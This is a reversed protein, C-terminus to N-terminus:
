TSKTTIVQFNVSLQFWVCDCCGILLRDLTIYMHLCLVCLSIYVCSKKIYVLLRWPCHVWIPCDCVYFKSNFLFWLLRDFCDKSYFRFKSNLIRQLHLTWFTYFAIICFIIFFIFELNLIMQPGIWIYIYIYIYLGHFITQLGPNWPTKLLVVIM